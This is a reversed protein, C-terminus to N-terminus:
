HSSPLPRHLDIVAHFSPPPAGGTGVPQHRDNPPSVKGQELFGCGAEAAVTSPSLVRTTSEDHWPQWPCSSM